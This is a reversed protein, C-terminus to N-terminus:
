YFVGHRIESLAAEKLSGMQVTPIKDAAVANLHLHLLPILSNRAAESVIYDWDLPGSTLERIKDAVDLTANVRACCILLRKEPCGTEAISPDM